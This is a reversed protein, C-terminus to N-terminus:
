GAADPEELGTLVERRVSPLRQRLSEAYTALDALADAVPRRLLFEGQAVKLVLHFPAEALRELIKLVADRSMDADQALDELLFVCPARLVALRTLLESAAGREAVRAAVGQEFRKLGQDLLGDRGFHSELEIPSVPVSEHLVVLRELAEWSWLTARALDAPGKLRLLDLRDGVVALYNAPSARRRSLLGAWDLREAGRLLQVLVKYGRRGMEAHLYVVGATLPEIRFGLPAFVRRLRSTLAVAALAAANDQEEEFAAGRRAQPAPGTGDWLTGQRVKPAAPTAAGAASPPPGGVPAAGAGQEGDLEALASAAAAARPDILFRQAAPAASAAPLEGGGAPREPAVSADPADQAARPPASAETPEPATAGAVDAAYTADSRDPHDAPAGAEPAGPAESSGDAPVAAHADGGSAGVPASVMDGEVPGPAPRPRRVPTLAFRGDDLPAVVLEDNVDLDHERYLPGLGAVVRPHSMEVVHEVDTATDVVVVEGAEPFLGLMARPLTMTGGRLCVRTLPYRYEQSM